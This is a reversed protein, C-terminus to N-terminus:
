RTKGPDGGRSIPDGSKALKPVQDIVSLVLHFRDLENLVTLDFPTTTTGRTPIRLAM